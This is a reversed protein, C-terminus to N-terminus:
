ASVASTVTGTRADVPITFFFKSGQGPESELQLSGQHAEVIRRAIALGLGSGERHRKKMGREVQAFEDFIKDRAEPAIGIGTDRM